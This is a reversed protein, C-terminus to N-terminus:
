QPQHKWRRHSWLWYAPEDRIIQELFRTHMETIEFEATEAPNLCLPVCDVEYYGRKIVKVRLYFVPRNTKKAIKEIGLQIATPQNLFTTWYNSEERTPAQDNGFSFLTTIDKTAQLARFTQRMAIMQNGFKCRVKKFWADFIPNNLPKYIPYQVASFHLGCSLTGWEWNGYHASCVLVSEGRQLYGEILERNRFPFRRIAEEKSISNLKVIEFILAALYKFYKKEIAVIETLEKEPFANMLNARVVKRRYNFVYYLLVYLGDALLYLISMPLLSLVVIFFIGLHAFGKKLM